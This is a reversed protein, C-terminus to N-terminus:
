RSLVCAVVLITSTIVVIMIIMQAAHGFNPTVTSFVAGNENHIVKARTRSSSTELSIEDSQPMDDGNLDTWSFIYYYDTYDKLNPYIIDIFCLGGAYTGRAGIGWESLVYRDLDEYIQLVFYDREDEDYTSGEVAYLHSGDSIRTFLHHTGNNGYGVKAIGADEYYRVMRNAYRGGFTVINGVFLPKGDDDLYASSAPKQTPPTIIQPNEKFSYFAYFASNDYINGTTVYHTSNTYAQLIRDGLDSISVFARANAKNEYLVVRNHSWGISIIDLDGDNDIDVVQVGDHHEDGTYVMHQNWSTGNRDANEFVYLKASSPNNLNHEGVVVDLDGDSDM